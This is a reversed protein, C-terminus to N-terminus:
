ILNRVRRFEQNHFDVYKRNINQKNNRINKLHLEILMYDCKTHCNPCVILINDPDDPGCHPERLPLIHHGEIYFKNQPLLFDLGCLQCSHGVLQKIESVMATDRVTREFTVPRRIPSGNANIPLVSRSIQFTRIFAVLTKFYSYHGSEYYGNDVNSSHHIKFIEDGPFKNDLGVLRDRSCVTEISHNTCALIGYVGRLQTIRTIRTNDGVLLEYADIIEHDENRGWRPVVRNQTLLYTCLLDYRNEFSLM